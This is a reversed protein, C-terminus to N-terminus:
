IRFRTVDDNKKFIVLASDINPLVKCLLEAGRQALLAELDPYIPRQPTPLAESAVIAGADFRTPHLQQITVGCEADNNIITSQIPSAGRYKPLLSPHINVCGRSFENILSEPLKYGFSVVVGFNFRTTGNGPSPVQRPPTTHSHFRTLSLAHIICGGLKRAHAPASSTDFRRYKRCICPTASHYHQTYTLFRTSLGAAALCSKSSITVLGRGKPKDPSTM